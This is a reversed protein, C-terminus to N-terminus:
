LIKFFTKEESNGPILLLTQYAFIDLHALDFPNPAVSPDKLCALSSTTDFDATILKKTELKM